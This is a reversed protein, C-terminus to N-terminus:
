LIGAPLTIANALPSYFADVTQTPTDWELRDVPGGARDLDKYFQVLAASRLTETFTEGVQVTEYTKWTDPYGVKLVLTDLKKYAETKTAPTMWSPTEFRGRFAEAVGEVLETAAGKVEPSFSEAVYLQGIADPM